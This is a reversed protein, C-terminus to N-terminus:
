VQQQNLDLVSIGITGVNSLYKLVRATTCYDTLLADIQVQVLVLSISVSISKELKIIQSERM